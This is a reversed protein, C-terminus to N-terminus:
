DELQSLAERLADHCIHVSHPLVCCKDYLDSRTELTARAAEVLPAHREKQIRAGAELGELYALAAPQVLEAQTIAPGDPVPAPTNDWVEVSYMPCGYEDTCDHDILLVELGTAESADKAARTLEDTM